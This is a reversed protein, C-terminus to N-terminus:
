FLRDGRWKRAEKRKKRVFIRGYLIYLSLVLILM